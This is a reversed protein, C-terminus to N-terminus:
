RSDAIERHRERHRSDLCHCRHEDTMAAVHMWGWTENVNSHDIESKSLMFLLSFLWVRSVEESAKHAGWKTMHCLLLFRPLSPICTGTASAKRLSICFSLLFFIRRCTTCLVKWAARGFHEHVQYSELTCPTIPEIAEDTSTLPARLTSLPHPPRYPFKWKGMRESYTQKEVRVWQTDQTHTSKWMYACMPTSRARTQYLASQLTGSGRKAFRLMCDGVVVWESVRRRVMSVMVPDCPLTEPIRRRFTLPVSRLPQREFCALRPDNQADRM